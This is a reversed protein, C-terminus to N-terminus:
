GSQVFFAIWLTARMPQNEDSRVMRSYAVSMQFSGAHGPPVSLRHQRRLLDVPHNLPALIIGEGGQADMRRRLAEGGAHHQGLRQADAGVRQRALRHALQVANMGIAQEAALHRHALALRQAVDRAIGIAAVIRQDIGIAIARHQARHVIMIEGFSRMAAQEVLHTRMDDIM